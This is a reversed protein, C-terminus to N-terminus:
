FEYNFREIECKYREQVLARTKENYYEQYPKKKKKRSGLTNIKPVANEALKELGITRLYSNFERDVDELKIVKNVIIKGNEDGAYNELSYTGYTLWRRNGLGGGGEGDIKSAVLWKQFTPKSRLLPKRRYIHNWYINEYTSVLRAWPNRTMVISNYDNYNLGRNEFVSRLELPRMHSYFPSDSTTEDFNVITEENIAELKMRISESGTKPNSFFILKHTHSIIM